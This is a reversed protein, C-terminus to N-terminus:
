GALRPISVAGDLRLTSGDRAADAFGIGPKRERGTVDPSPDEEFADIDSGGFFNREARQQHRIQCRGHRTLQMDATEVHIPGADDYRQNERQQMGAIILLICASNATRHTRGQSRQADRLTEIQADKPQRSLV